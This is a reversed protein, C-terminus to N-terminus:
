PLDDRGYRVTVTTVLSPPDSDPLAARVSERDFAFGEIAHALGGDEVVRRAHDGYRTRTPAIGAVAKAGFEARACHVEIRGPSTEQWRAVMSSDPGMAVRTQSTPLPLLRGYNAAAVRQLAVIEPLSAGGSDGALYPVVTLWALRHALDDPIPAGTPLFTLGDMEIGAFLAAPTAAPRICADTAQAAAPMAIFAISAILRIM